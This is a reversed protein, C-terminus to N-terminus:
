VVFERIYMSVTISYIANLLTWRLVGIISYRRWRASNVRLYLRMYGWVCSRLSHCCLVKRLLSRYVNLVQFACYTIVSKISKIKHRKYLCSPPSCRFNFYFHYVAPLSAATFRFVTESKIKLLTIQQHPLLKRSSKIAVWTM